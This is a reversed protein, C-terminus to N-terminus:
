KIFQIIDNYFYRMKLIESQLLIGVRNRPGTKTVHASQVDLVLMNDLPSPVLLGIPCNARGLNAEYLPVVGDFM